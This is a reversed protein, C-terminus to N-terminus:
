PSTVIAMSINFFGPSLAPSAPAGNLNLSNAVSFNFIPIQGAGVTFTISGPNPAPESQVTETPGLCFGTSAPIAYSGEAANAAPGAVTGGGSTTIYTTGGFTASGKLKMTCTLILRARNYTGASLNAQQTTVTEGPAVAAIDVDTLDLATTYTAGNDKSFAINLTVKYGTPTGTAQPPAQATASDTTALVLAVSSLAVSVCVLVRQRIKKKWDMASTGGRIAITVGGAKSRVSETHDVSM